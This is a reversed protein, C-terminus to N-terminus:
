ANSATQNIQEFNLIDMYEWERYAMLYIGEANALETLDDEFHLSSFVPILKLHEFEPFLQRFTPITKHKFDLLKTRDPSVKTEVLFLFSASAAVVDFEGRLNQAKDRKRVNVARYTVEEKFYQEMVPRVAPAIIDEVLTGMKNALEGWQKNMNKRDERMEQKFDSMEDKFDSMEDKFDSMEDKFDSMEDKFASMEDKFASMEDKFASMEDKFASMEDKFASLEQRLKRSDEEMNRRSQEVQRELRDLNRSTNLNAHTMQRVYEYIANELDSVRELVETEM